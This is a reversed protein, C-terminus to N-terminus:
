YGYFTVPYGDLLCDIGGDYMRMNDMYSYDGGGYDMRISTYFADYWDWTFRYRYERVYGYRDQMCIYDEGTHDPYFRLEQRQYGDADSWEDIWIFSCLYETSERGRLTNDGISFDVECSSLSLVLATLAAMYYFKRSLTKM